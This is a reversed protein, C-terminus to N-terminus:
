KFIEVAVRTAEAFYQPQALQSLTTFRTIYQQHFLHDVSTTIRDEKLRDVEIVGVKCGATLAEYIMSVSDETVWVAEAKQMEEFIWGQPTVEVPFIQVKEINKLQKLEALFAKPTRRSTTLIIESNPNLEVIQQIAHLVKAANWQHRKSSGGLAILIRGHQHREENVIPNLAGQTTLVKNSAQIGDHQPIVAYDFWAFPLSPKMLIITKAKNYVKGLLWVRFHTHSGVGFIYTPEHEVAHVQHSFLASILTAIPLDDISIEQFTVAEQSQRQMAKFLGLAQSRHGAKGDSVYVIHM